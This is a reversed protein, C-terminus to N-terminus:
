GFRGDDRSSGKQTGGQTSANLTQGDVVWFKGDKWIDGTVQM